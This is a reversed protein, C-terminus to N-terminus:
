YASQLDISDIIHRIIGVASLINSTDEQNLVLEKQHLLAWRGDPGWSGTYGGTNFQVGHNRLKEELAKVSDYKARIEEDSYTGKNISNNLTQIALKYDSFVKEVDIGLVDKTHDIIPNGPLNM